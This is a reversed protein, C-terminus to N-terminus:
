SFGRTGRSFYLSFPMKEPLWEDEGDGSAGVVRKMKM